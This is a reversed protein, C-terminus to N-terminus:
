FDNPTCEIGNITCSILMQELKYGFLKKEEDSLINANIITLYKLFNLNKVIQNSKYKTESLDFDISDNSLNYKNFITEIFKISHNTVFPNLNCVTITPLLSPIETIKQIKTIVGFDLYNIINIVILYSCITTSIFLICIWIIRISDSRTKAIKSFGHFTTDLFWRFLVKKIPTQELKKTNKAM